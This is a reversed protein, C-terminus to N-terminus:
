VPVEGMVGRKKSAFFGEKHRRERLREWRGVRIVFRMM